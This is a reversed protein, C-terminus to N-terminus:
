WFSTFHHNQVPFALVHWCYPAHAWIRFVWGVDTMSLSTDQLTGTSSCYCWCLRAHSFKCVNALSMLIPCTCWRNSTAGWFIVEVAWSTVDNPPLLYTTNKHLIERSFPPSEQRYFFRKTISRSQGCVRSAEPYPLFNRRLIVPQNGLSSHVLFYWDAVIRCLIARYGLFSFLKECWSQDM